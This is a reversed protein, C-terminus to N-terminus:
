KIHFRRKLETNARRGGIIVTGLFAFVTVAMAMYSLFPATIYGTLSLIVPIMSFFIMAIQFCLYSQWNRRNFAILGLIAVDMALLASPFVYNMSWGNNGLVRDIVLLLLVAGAVGVIMKIRYGAHSYSVTYALTLYIYAFIVGVIASWYIGNFYFYNLCIFITELVIAAFLYIRILLKLVFNKAWIDPYKNEAESDADLVCNCLPCIQTDDHIIM